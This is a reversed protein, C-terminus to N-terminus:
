PGENFKPVRGWESLDDSRGLAEDRGSPVPLDSFLGPTLKGEGILPLELQQRQLELKAQEMEQRLKEVSLAKKLEIGQRTREVTVEKETELKIRLPLLAKQQEFPLGPGATTPSFSDGASM